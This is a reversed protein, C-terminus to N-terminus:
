KFQIKAQTGDVNLIYITLAIKNRLYHVRNICLELEWVYAYTSEKPLKIGLLMLKETQLIFFVVGFYLNICICM